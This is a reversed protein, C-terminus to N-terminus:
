PAPWASQAFPTGVGSGERVALVRKRKEGLGYSCRARYAGVPASHAAHRTADGISKSAATSTM